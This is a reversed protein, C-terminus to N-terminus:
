TRTIRMDYQIFGSNISTMRTNDMLMGRIINHPNGDLPFLLLLKSSFSYKSFSFFLVTVMTLSFSKRLLTLLLLSKSHLHYYVGCVKKGQRLNVCSAFQTYSKFHFYFIAWLLSLYSDTTPGCLAASSGHWVCIIIITFKRHM